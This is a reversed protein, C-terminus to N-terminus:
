ARVSFLRKVWTQYGKLRLDTAAQKARMYNPKRRSYASRHYEELLVGADNELEPVMKALLSVQEAPTLDTTPNHGWVRLMESVRAFLAEMPTRRARISWMTLWSPPRIGRSTLTREFWTPVPTNKLSYKKWRYYAFAVLGLAVASGGFKIANERTKKQNALRIQQALEENSLGQNAVPPVFPTPELSDQLNNDSTSTDGLAFTLEPQSGTPEFPVWGLGPFFVEPWAHYDRGAIEYVQQDPIWTGQAYGVVMRTPVGVSRLMLVEASAYYNCFGAKEEFLFWEV